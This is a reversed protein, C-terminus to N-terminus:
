SYELFCCVFLLTNVKLADEEGAILEATTKYQDMAELYEREVEEREALQPLRKDLHKKLKDIESQINKRSRKTDIPQSVETAKAEARSAEQRLKAIDSELNRVDCQIKDIRDQFFRVKQEAERKKNNCDGM